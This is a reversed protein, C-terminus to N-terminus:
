GGDVHPGEVSGSIVLVEVAEGVRNDLPPVLPEVAAYGDRGSGPAIDGVGEWAVIFDDGVADVHVMERLQSGWPWLVLVALGVDQKDAPQFSSLAKSVQQLGEATQLPVEGVDSQQHHTRAVRVLVAVPNQAGLVELIHDEQSSDGVLVQRPIVGRGVDETGGGGPGLAKADDRNSAIAAPLGTTAELISPYQPTIVSPWSPSKKGRFSLSAKALM